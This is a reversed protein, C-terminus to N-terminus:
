QDAQPRSTMIRHFYEEPAESNEVEHEGDDPIVLQPFTAARKLIFAVLAVVAAFATGIILTKKM